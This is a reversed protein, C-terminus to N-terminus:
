SNIEVQLTSKFIPKLSIWAMAITRKTERGIEIEMSNFLKTADEKAKNLKQLSDEAAKAESDMTKTVTKNGTYEKTSIYGQVPGFWDEAEAMSGQHIGTKTNSAIYGGNGDYIGVHGGSLLTVLKQSIAMM